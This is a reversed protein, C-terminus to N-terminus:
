EDNEKRAAIADAIPAVLTLQAKHCGILEEWYESLKKEMETRHARMALAVCFVTAAASGVFVVGCLASMLIPNM